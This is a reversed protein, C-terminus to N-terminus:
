PAGLAALLAAREDDTLTAAFTTVDSARLCAVAACALEQSTALAVGALNGHEGIEIANVCEPECTQLRVTVDLVRM